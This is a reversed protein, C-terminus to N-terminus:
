RRHDDRSGGAMDVEARRRRMRSKLTRGSRRRSPVGPSGPEEHLVLTARVTVLSEQSVDNPQCRM